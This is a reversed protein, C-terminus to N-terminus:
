GPLRSRKGPFESFNTGLRDLHLAFRRLLVSHGDSLRATRELLERSRAIAVTSTRVLVDQYPNPRSSAAVFPNQNELM